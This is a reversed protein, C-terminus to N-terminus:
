PITPVKILTNTVGCFISLYQNQEPLIKLLNSHDNLSSCFSHFYKQPRGDGLRNISRWHEQADKVSKEIDKYEVPREQTTSMSPRSRENSDKRRWLRHIRKSFRVRKHEDKERQEKELTQQFERWQCNLIQCVTDLDEPRDSGRHLHM